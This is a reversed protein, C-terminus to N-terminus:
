GGEGAALQGLKQGAPASDALSVRRLLMARAERGLVTGVTAKAAELGALVEAQQEPLGDTPATRGGGSDAAPAPPQPTLPASGAPAPTPPPVAEAPLLEPM